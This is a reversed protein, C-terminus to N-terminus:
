CNHNQINLGKYVLPTHGKFTKDTFIHNVTLAIFMKKYYKQQIKKRIQKIYM